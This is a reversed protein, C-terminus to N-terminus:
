GSIRDWLSLENPLPDIEIADEPCGTACLGCGRCLSSYFVIQRNGTAKSKNKGAAPVPKRRIRFANFPCRKACLGCATCKEKIRRAIHRTLPWLKQAKQKEALQHPFCCDTCCNCIAGDITGDALLGIEASHMLGARDAEHLIKKARARSIEWGLGRNNSFRLCTTVPNKCGEMMARCNCPWLYIHDVKELLSKAEDLLVYEPCVESFDRKSKKLANISRRHKKTYFKIEWENLRKRVEEPIDQWGEFLAWIEYRAHFDAPVYRNDARKDLIGRKFARHLRAKIEASSGKGMKRSVEAATGANKELQLVLDIDEPGYFRDIWSHLFRPIGALAALQKPRQNDTTM